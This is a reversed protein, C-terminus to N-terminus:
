RDAKKTKKLVRLYKKNKQLYMKNDADAIIKEKEIHVNPPTISIGVSISLKYPKQTNKNYVELEENLRDVLLYADKKSNALLAILFEDGGIRATLDNKRVTKLIIKSISVIAVDGERHGYCDNIIKLKNVDIFIVALYVNLLPPLDDFYKNIGRKNQLGTLYDTYISNNIL